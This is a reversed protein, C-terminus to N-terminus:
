KEGTERSYSYRIPNNIVYKTCDDYDDPNRIVRDFFSRQWISYGIRKTVVGKFQKVMRDVTPGAHPHENTKPLVAVILHIHDPMIVFSRITVPEYISHWQELEDFVIKGAKSLPLGKPRICKNGISIWSLKQPDLEGNWFFNHRNSTCITLFYAGPNSYDYNVLRNNKRTPFKNDDNM